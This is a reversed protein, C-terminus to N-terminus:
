KLSDLSISLTRAIAVALELSPSRKGTEISYITMRGCGCLEALRGQTLGARERATRVIRSFDM